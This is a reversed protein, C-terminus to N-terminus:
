DSDEADAGFETAVVGADYGQEALHRRFVSTYGHTVFVREAGTAAIASNLGGWDAHDSMVFGRDASRRRRVGRLAMWGSAFATSAPRFRGAWTSGLASPPALVFAGPVSKVDLDPTVQVTEPLAIGQRRMVRNTGEIAGHCLIPGISPDLAALIRQAKGLSYAGCISFRGEAANAAWWRNIEAAVEEPPAWNFVPLGFTCESIFTDCALPEFPASIGDTELKYDGSVVWVEGGVEVRVQASGPVHGAPHLSIRAGGVTVTEGYGVTDLAIEGLRHRLVPAAESTALYRGMGARAHDAHGHTIVARDVPKWPDVYIDAAPCYIGRETFTLVSVM